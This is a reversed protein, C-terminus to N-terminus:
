NFRGNNGGASYRGAGLLAIAISGFLFMGQLELAWGGMQGLSFLEQMHALTFAVAMNGVMLVAGVRTFLGIIVLVPGVVEGLYVGYALLTPLGHSELMGEIGGIGNQLKSIGHLLILVGVSVRLVLKGIDETM